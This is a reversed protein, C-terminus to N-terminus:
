KEKTTEQQERQLVFVLHALTELSQKRHPPHFKGIFAVNNVESWLDEVTKPKESSM